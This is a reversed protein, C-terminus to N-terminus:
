WFGKSKERPRARAGDEVWHGNEREIMVRYNARNMPASCFGRAEALTKFRYEATIWRHMGGDEGPVARLPLRREVTFRPEHRIGASMEYNHIAYEHDDISTRDYCGQFAIRGFPVVKQVWPKRRHVYELEGALRKVAEMKAM